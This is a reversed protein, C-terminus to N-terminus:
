SSCLEQGRADSSMYSRARIPLWAKDIYMNSGDSGKVKGPGEWKRNDNIKYYVIDGTFFKNHVSPRINHKLARKIRESSEAKIFAERALKMCTLQDNVIDQSDCEELAPLKNTLNGLMKPNYGLALQSPSFGNVNALSNKAQLSWALANEISTKQDALVRHLMEALTANHREVLGNSWPSYAATTLIRINMSECLEIFHPNAFEGGNDTIFKEPPGFIAIWAKCIGDIITRPEKSKCVIASSFRTLHDIMHLIITGKFFKLDLAVTENFKSAHPLGVAPVPSPRAYEKCVKCEDQVQNIQEVLEEDYGLGARDILQLLKNKPPHAFQSHLKQAMKKKEMTEETVLNIKFAGESKIQKLIKRNKNLPIAYHGCKTLLVDQTEGFMTVTDNEFDIKTEAKKM